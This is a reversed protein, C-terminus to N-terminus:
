PAGVPPGPIPAPAPHRSQPQPASAPTGSPAPSPAAQPSAPSQVICGGGFPAGLIPPVNATPFYCRKSDESERVSARRGLLMFIGCVLLAPILLLAFLLLNKGSFIRNGSIQSRYNNLMEDCLTEGLVVLRKSPKEVERSTEVAKSYFKRLYPYDYSKALSDSTSISIEDSGREYVGVIGRGEGIWQRAVQQAQQFVTGDSIYTYTAIYIDIGTEEATKKLANELRALEEPNMMEAGDWVYSTPPTEPFDDALASVAPLCCLMLILAILRM